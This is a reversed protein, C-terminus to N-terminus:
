KEPCCAELADALQRLTRVLEPYRVAYYVEKGRKEASLIGAERLVALHRSVVSLDTPCCEAIKSVTCPACLAALRALIAVRRPDCLAKFFRPDLLEGLGSCCAGKQPIENDCKNM